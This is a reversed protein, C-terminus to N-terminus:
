EPLECAGQDIQASLELAANVFGLTGRWSTGGGPIVMARRGRLHRRLIAIRESYSGGFPVLESGIKIHMNLTSPVADTPAQHSLFAISSFGHQRAYLATALAHHSGTTGFTAITARDRARALGLMYELK